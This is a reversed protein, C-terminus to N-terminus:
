GNVVQKIKQYPHYGKNTVLYSRFGGVTCRDVVLVSPFGSVSVCPMRSKNYSFPIGRISQMMHVEVGNSVISVISEKNVDLGPLDVTICNEGLAIPALM